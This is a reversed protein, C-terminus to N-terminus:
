SGPPTSLRMAPREGLRSERSRLQEGLMQSFLAAGQANLHHIDLFLGESSHPFAGPQSYDLVDFGLEASLARLLLTLKDHADRNETYTRSYEPPRVVVLRKGRDRCTQFARRLKELQPGPSASPRLYQKWETNLHGDTRLFGNALLVSPGYKLFRGGSALHEHWVEGRPIHRGAIAERTWFFLVDRNRFTAFLWLAHDTRGHRDIAKRDGFPLALVWSDMVYVVERVNPLRSVEDLVDHFVNVPAYGLQGANFTKIGTKSDLAEPDIGMMATSSGVVIRQFDVTGSLLAEHQELKGLRPALLRDWFPALPQVLVEAMAVLFITM